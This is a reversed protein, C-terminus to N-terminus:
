VVYHLRELIIEQLEEFWTKKKHCAEISQVIGTFSQWLGEHRLCATGGARRKQSNMRNIDGVCVVPLGADVSVAWKSHDHRTSFEVPPYFSKGFNISDVNEVIAPKHSCSSNMKGPGNPWSEVAFGNKFHPALLDAYLDGNFKTTKAYAMFSQKRSLLKAIKISYYPSVDLHKGKAAMTLSPSMKAMFEPMNHDFVYPRDFLLQKGVMEAADPSSLTLCLFSQGYIRGTHPYGYARSDVPTPYKPVSHILWYGTKRGFVVVGKTHGSTFSTNGDPHEDNYVIYALRNGDSKYIPSLTRGPASLPDAVSLKSLTWGASTSQSTLHAFALGEDVLENRPSSKSPYNASGKPLKYGVFWDVENGSEDM